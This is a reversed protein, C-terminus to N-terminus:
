YKSGSEQSADQDSSGSEAQGPAQESAGPGTEEQMQKGPPAESAGEASRGPAYESAGPGSEAQMQQGPAKEAAPQDSNEGEVALASGSLLL